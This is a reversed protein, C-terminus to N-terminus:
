GRGRGNKKWYLVAWSYNRSYPLQWRGKVMVLHKRLYERVKEEEEETMGQLMWRQDKLAEEHSEWSNPNSEPIFSVNARIGMEYLLNVYFIYDPRLRFERGASELLKRDFPGDGVQTSIYVAKKAVRDLKTLSEGADESLLSRSAIAVDHVGIGLRDWDDEWRGPLTKVNVIGGRRCREEVIELMRGSFDVATISKVKRALPIALTGGGCAMDLVTWSKRPKMIRLFAAPYGTSAAHESFEQARGNWFKQKDVSDSKAENREDITCPPNDKM